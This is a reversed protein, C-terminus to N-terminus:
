SNYNAHYTSAGVVQFLECQLKCNHSCLYNSVVSLFIFEKIRSTVVSYLVLSLALQYIRSVAEIVCMEIWGYRVLPLGLFPHVIDVFVTQVRIRFVTNIEGLM